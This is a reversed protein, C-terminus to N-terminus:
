CWCFHFSFLGRASCHREPHLASGILKIVASGDLAYLWVDKSPMFQARPPLAASPGLPAWATCHRVPCLVNYTGGAVCLIDCVGVNGM